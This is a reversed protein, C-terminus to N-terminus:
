RKYKSTFKNATLINIAASHKNTEVSFTQLISPWVPELNKSRESKCTIAPKKYYYNLNINKVPICYCLKM